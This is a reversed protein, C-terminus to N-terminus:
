WWGQRKAWRLLWASMASMVVLVLGLHVFDTRGNVIVNMGYVSALATIPLTVVAIVALREAAIMMKTDTRARYHDIVGEVYDKQSGAIGHLREFQDILDDVFSRDDAPFRAIRAIRGHIERSLGAMTSVALLGHRTEFLTELFQESNRIKSGTVQQELQWADTTLEEITREMHRAMASVIAYSLEFPAKPRLRGAELRRLVADTERLAVAPDVAPNMPGHVTVVYNPGIFLDLEIYHVHGASGQEPGHLLVFIHDAYAHVKPVRNREACARVALPHFGFVELLVEEADAHWFPIDVWVFGSDRELLSRLAGAEHQEVSSKDVFRVDM